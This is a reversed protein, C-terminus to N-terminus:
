SVISDEYAKLIEKEESTFPLRGDSFLSNEEKGEGKAIEEFLYSVRWLFDKISKAHYESKFERHDTKGASRKELIRWFHDLAKPCLYNGTERSTGRQHDRFISYEMLTIERGSSLLPDLSKALSDLLETRKKIINLREEREKIVESISKFFASFLNMFIAQYVAIKKLADESEPFVKESRDLFDHRKKFIVGALDKSNIEKYSFHHGEKYFGVVWKGKRELWICMSSGGYLRVGRINKMKSTPKKESLIPRDLYAVMPLIIKRAEELVKELAAEELMLKRGIGEGVALAKIQEAVTLAQLIRAEEEKRKLSSM